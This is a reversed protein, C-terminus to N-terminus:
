DRFVKNLFRPLTIVGALRSGETVYCVNANHRALQEAVAIAPAKVDVIPFDEKTIVDDLWTRTENRLLEVFPEFNQMPSLDDMWLLYDPMCIRLLSHISVIGVLDGDKDVVPVEYKNQDVFYDIADKINNTNLLTGAPPAMVDAACVYEPLIFGGRQFFSHIDKETELGAAQEIGDKKSFITSLAALIQLYVAPKDIPILIMVALKVTQSGFAIGNRSTAISVLPADLGDLRTHPIAAGGPLVSSGSEEHESISKVVAEPNKLGHNAALRGVMEGFLEGSTRSKTQCIVDQETFLSAFRDGSFTSKAM